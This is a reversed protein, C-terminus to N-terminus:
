SAANLTLPDTGQHSPSQANEIAAIFRQQDDQAQALATLFLVGALYLLRAVTM